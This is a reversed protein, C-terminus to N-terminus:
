HNTIESRHHGFCFTPSLITVYKSTILDKQQGNQSLQCSHSALFWLILCLCAGKGLRLPFHLPQSLLYLPQQDFTFFCSISTFLDASLPKSNLHLQQSMCTLRCMQFTQPRCPRDTSNSGRDPFCICPTLQPTNQTKM